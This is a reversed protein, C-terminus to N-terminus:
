PQTAITATTIKMSNIAKAPVHEPLEYTVERHQFRQFTMATALFRPELRM